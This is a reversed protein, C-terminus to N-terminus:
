KRNEKEKPFSAAGNDRLARPRLTSVWCVVGDSSIVPRWSRGAFIETEIVDRLLNQPTSSRAKSGHLGNAGNLKKLPNPPAGTTPGLSAKRVREKGRERCARSCYLQQRAAREVCRGCVRCVVPADRRAALNTAPIM